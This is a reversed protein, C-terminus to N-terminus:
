PTIKVGCMAAALHAGPTALRHRRPAHFTACRHSPDRRREGAALRFPRTGVAQRVLLCLGDGSWWLLKILDGRRGRFLFVHGAYPNEALASQVLTALGDMGRRMDTVGTALWIRTGAPLSIM